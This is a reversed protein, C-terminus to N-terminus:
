PRAEWGTEQEPDSSWEPMEGREQCPGVRAKECGGGSRPSSPWPVGALLEATPWPSGGNEGVMTHTESHPRTLCEVRQKRM